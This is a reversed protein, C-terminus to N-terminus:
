KGQMAAVEQANSPLSRALEDLAADVSNAFSQWSFMRTTEVAALGMTRCLGPNEALQRIRNAFADAVPPVLFGNRGDIMFETPGGRNSCIVPKGFAMSELPVIGWDENFATFLSAHCTGYFENLDQDSVKTRFEIGNERVARWAGCNRPLAREKQGGNRRCGSSVPWSRGVKRAQLFAEIGVEINKTWMIRGAILFFQDFRDTPTPPAFGLGVHAVEIRESKALHGRVARQKVEESICM